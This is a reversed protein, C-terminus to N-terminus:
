SHFETPCQWLVIQPCDLRLTILPGVIQYLAVALPKFHATYKALGKLHDNEVSWSTFAGYWGSDFTSGVQAVKLLAEHLNALQKASFHGYPNIESPM